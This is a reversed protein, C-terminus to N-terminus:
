SWVEFKSQLHSAREELEIIKNKVLTLEDQWQSLLTADVKSFGRPLMELLGINDFHKYILQKHTADRDRHHIRLLPIDNENCYEDKLKDHHSIYEYSIPCQNYKKDHYGGDYEILTVVNEEIDFIAFDFRLLGGAVGVLDEYMYEMKFNLNFEKLLSYVKKAGKSLHCFECSFNEDLIPYKVRENPSQFVKTNCKKCLWWYRDKSTRTISDPLHFGNDEVIWETSLLPNSVRLPTRIINWGRGDIKTKPKDYVGSIVLTNKDRTFKFYRNWDKIQAKKSNGAEIKEGLHECLAKYSKYVQGVELLKKYNIEKTM